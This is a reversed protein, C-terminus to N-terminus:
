AALKRLTTSVDLELTGVSQATWVEARRHDAPGVTVEIRNHNLFHRFDRDFLWNGPRIGGSVLMSSAASLLRRHVEQNNGIIQMPNLPHIRHHNSLGFEILPNALLCSRASQNQESPSMPQNHLTSREPPSRNTCSAALSRPQWRLCLCRTRDEPSLSPGAIKGRAFVHKRLCRINRRETTERQARASTVVANEQRAALRM